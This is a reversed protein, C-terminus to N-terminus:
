KEEEKEIYIQLKKLVQQFSEDLRVKDFVPNSHLEQKISRLITQRNRPLSAGLELEEEIWNHILYFYDDGHLTFSVSDNMVFELSQQLYDMGLETDDLMFFKASLNYFFQMVLFPHLQSVRYADFLYEMRKCAEQLYEKSDILLLYNSTLSITSMLQQYLIAQYLEQAKETKGIMQYASAIIPEKPIYAQSATGLLQFIAEPKQLALLCIGEMKLAQNVLDSDESNKQIRVCVTQIQSMLESMKEPKPNLSVHNLLLIVMQFIFPYCSYYKHILRFSEDWTQEFDEQSFKRSFEEYFIRIEEKTLQAEYQLLEDITIDFYSALKPLFTIDPYSQSTEWKSVSTKSVGMFEALQEQTM